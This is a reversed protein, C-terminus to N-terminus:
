KRGGFIVVSGCDPVAAVSSLEEMEKPLPAIKWEKDKQLELIEISNLSKNGSNGSFCFARKLSILASAAWM